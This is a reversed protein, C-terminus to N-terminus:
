SSKSINQDLRKMIKRLNELDMSRYALVVEKYIRVM